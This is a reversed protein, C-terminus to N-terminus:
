NNVVHGRSVGRGDELFFKGFYDSVGTEGKGRSRVRTFEIRYKSFGGEEVSFSRNGRNWM